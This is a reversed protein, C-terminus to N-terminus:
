YFLLNVPQYLFLSVAYYLNAKTLSFLVFLKFPYLTKEIAFHNM